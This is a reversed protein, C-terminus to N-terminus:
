ARHIWHQFLAWQAADPDLQAGQMGLTHSVVHGPMQPVCGAQTAGAGGM